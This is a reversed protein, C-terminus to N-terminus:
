GERACPGWNWYMSIQGLYLMRAAVELVVAGLRTSMKLYGRREVM